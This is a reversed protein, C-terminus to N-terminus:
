AEAGHGESGALAHPFWNGPNLLTKGILEDPRYNLMKKLCPNFSTFVGETSITCIIDTANQELTKLRTEIPDVVLKELDTPSAGPFLAVINYTPIPFTPDEAKPIEFLSTVGLAALMGFAVITFQYRQVSFSALNM